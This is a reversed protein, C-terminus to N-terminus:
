PPRGLKLGLSRFSINLPRLLVLLSGSFLSRPQSTLLDSFLEGNNLVFIILPSMDTSSVVDPLELEVVTFAMKVFLEVIVDCSSFFNQGSDSCCIKRFSGGGGFCGGDNFGSQLGSRRFFNEGSTLVAEGSSDTM